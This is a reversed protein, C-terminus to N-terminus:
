GFTFSYAEVGPSFHLELLGTRSRPSAAATYLRDSTVHLTREPRGDVFSQVSGHGGLVIYVDRARFRLQLKAGRGSVIRQAGVNWQGAYSLDSQNLSSAFRYTHWRDHVIPTGEYRMLRDYGLYSEPTMLEFPTRDPMALAKPLHSRREALLTRIAQETEDYNGEGFHVERVHGQADILYEAPWYQNSYADWTGYDNDLGVPYRVGLRKVASSVNSLVHEFAFEPTHVGVITLGDARYRKDWAELYPLTRLCNICSYTWFDILVVRGHLRALSLPHEDPTNLWASIGTFDPAPGFDHLGAASAERSSKSKARTLLQLKKAAYGTAETHRQIANTYDGLATQLHEPAHFVIALATAAVVVGLARRV